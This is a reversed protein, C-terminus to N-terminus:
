AASRFASDYRAYRTGPAAMPAHLNRINGPSVSSGDGKGSPILDTM